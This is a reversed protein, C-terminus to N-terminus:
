NEGVENVIIVQKHLTLQYKLVKAMVINEESQLLGSSHM